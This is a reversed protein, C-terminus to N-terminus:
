QVDSVDITFRIANITGSEDRLYGGITLDFVQFPYCTEICWFSHANYFIGQVNRVDMTYVHDVDGGSFDGLPDIYRPRRKEIVDCYILFTVHVHRIRTSSFNM